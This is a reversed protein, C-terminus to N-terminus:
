KRRLFRPIALLVVAVAAFLALAVLGRGAGPTGVSVELRAGGNLKEFRHVVGQEPVHVPLSLLGARTEPAAPPGEFGSGAGGSPVIAGGADLPGLHKEYSPFRGAGGGAGGVNPPRVLDGPQGPVATQPLPGGPPVVVLGAIVKNSELLRSISE